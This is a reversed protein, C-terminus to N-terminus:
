ASSSVRTSQKRSAMLEDPGIKVDHNRDLWIFDKEASYVPVSPEM